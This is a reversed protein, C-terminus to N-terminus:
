ASDGFAISPCCATSAVTESQIPGSSMWLTLSEIAGLWRRPCPAKSLRGHSAWSGIRFSKRNQGAGSRDPIHLSTGLMSTTLAM